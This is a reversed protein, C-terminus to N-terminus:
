KEIFKSKEMLLIMIIYNINSVNKEYYIIVKILFKFLMYM